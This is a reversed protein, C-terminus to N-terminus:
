ENGKASKEIEHRILEYDSEPIPHVNGQFALTWHEAPWKSAYTMQRALPEAPVLDDDDLALDAEIEFRYPYDEDKKRGSDWIKTHDEFYESTVTTIGAFSKVGTCYYVFKDGPKMQEAKKRHRSKIGQVTFGREATTHWNDLSSVLIWYQRGDAM